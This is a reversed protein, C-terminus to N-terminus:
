HKGRVPPQRGPCRNKGASAIGREDTDSGAGNRFAIRMYIHSGGAPNGGNYFFLRKANLAHGCGDHTRIRVMKIEKGFKFGGAFTEFPHAIMQRQILDAQKQFFPQDTVFRFADMFAKIIIHRERYLIDRCSAVSDDKRGPEMSVATREFIWIRPAHKEVDAQFRSFGIQDMRNQFAHAIM